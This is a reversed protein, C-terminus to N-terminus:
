DEMNKVKNYMDVFSQLSVTAKYAADHLKSLSKVFDFTSNNDFRESMEKILAVTQDITVMDLEDDDFNLPLSDISEEEELWFTDANYDAGELISFNEDYM